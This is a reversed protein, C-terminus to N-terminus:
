ARRIGKVLLRLLVLAGAILRTANCSSVFRADGYRIVYVGLPYVIGGFGGGGAEEANADGVVM